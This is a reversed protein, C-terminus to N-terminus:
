IDEISSCGDPNNGIQAKEVRVYDDIYILKNDTKMQILELRIMEMLTLEWENLYWRIGVWSNM